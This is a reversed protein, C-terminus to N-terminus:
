CTSGAVFVWALGGGPHRRASLAAVVSAAVFPIALAEGNAVQGAFAPALLVPVAVLLAWGPAGGSLRAARHLLVLFGVLGLAALLRVGVIGGLLDGLAFIWILTPPRDVWYRGYLEDGEGLGQALLLYGAEDASVWWGLMLVRVVLLVTVAAL